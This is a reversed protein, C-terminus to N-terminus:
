PSCDIALMHPFPPPCNFHGGACAVLGIRRIHRSVGVGLGLEFWLRINRESNNTSQIKSSIADKKKKFQCSVLGPLAFLVINSHNRYGAIPLQVNGAQM